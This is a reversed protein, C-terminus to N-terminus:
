ARSEHSGKLQTIWNYQNPNPFPRLPFWWLRFTYMPAFFIPIFVTMPFLKLQNVCIYIKRRHRLLVPNRCGCDWVDTKKPTWISERKQLFSSYWKVFFTTILECITICHSESMYLLTLKLKFAWSLSKNWCPKNNKTKESM